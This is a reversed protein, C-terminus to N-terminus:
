EIEAPMMKKVCFVMVNVCKIAVFLQNHVTVFFWDNGLMVIPLLPLIKPLKKVRGQLPSNWISSFNMTQSGNNVVSSYHLTQDRM